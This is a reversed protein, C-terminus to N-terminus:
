EVVTYVERRGGRILKRFQSYSRQWEPDGIVKHLAVEFEALNKYQSVFVLTYYEGTLDALISLMDYGLRKAVARQQKALEKATKMQEPDIQFIDRVVIM